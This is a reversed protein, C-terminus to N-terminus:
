IRKDVIVEGIAFDEPTTLKVNMKDGKVTYVSNYKNLYISADDTFNHLNGDLEDYASFIKEFNFAQPTQHIKIKNRDIMKKIIGKEVFSLTETADIVPIASDNEKVGRYVNNLLKESIFPRASDHIFVFKVNNYNEKIYKLGNFVSEQRTKGGTVLKINGMNRIEEETKKYFEDNTVIIVEDINKNYFLKEVSIKLISKHKIRYFQKPYKLGSRDGRGASMILGINM